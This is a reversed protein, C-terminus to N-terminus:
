QSLLRIDKRASKGVLSVTFPRFRKKSFAGRPLDWTSSPGPGAAATRRGHGPGFTHFSSRRCCCCRCLRPSSWPSLDPGVLPDMALTRSPATSLATYAALYPALPSPWAFPWSASHCQSLCRLPSPAPSPDRSPINSTSISLANPPPSCPEPSPAVPLSPCLSLTLQPRVDFCFCCHSTLIEVNSYGSRSSKGQEDEEEVM